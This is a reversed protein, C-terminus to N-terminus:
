SLVIAFAEAKADRAAHRSGARTERAAERRPESFSFILTSLPFTFITQTTRRIIENDFCSVSRSVGHRTLRLALVAVKM